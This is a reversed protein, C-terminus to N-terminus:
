TEELVNPRNISSNEIFIVGGLFIFGNAFDVVAVINLLFSDGHFVSM